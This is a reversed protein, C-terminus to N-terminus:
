SSFVDRALGTDAYETVHEILGDRIRYVHCYTNNYVKGTKTIRNEAYSEAVVYDSQAVINTVVSIGMSEMLDHMSGLLKVLIERKGEQSGFGTITWGANDTLYKEVDLGSALVKKIMEINDM